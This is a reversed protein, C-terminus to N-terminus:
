FDIVLSDNYQKQLVKFDEKMTKVVEQYSAEQALDNLEKPDNKMDYLRVVKATPYIILKYDETRIMRQQNKYSGYVALYNSEQQKGKVFPMLSSFEVYDPKEVGALDLSTAMIDQLYVAVDTKKGKPVDPGAMMLPPRISHDYMNQKGILGHCGVSLGHDATFFIYTNDAKGSAELADLIRGIQQDMHTIIAYYEQRNVRVAYETRPFPALREDRLTRPCGMEENYPYEELFSEPVSINELPYMDVFEKPSQRPDHPANFALYMFFPNEKEKAQAIFGLADDGVIESWHKSGQWFGGFETKWPKWTTDNESLPRNYGAETQKPMGARPHAVYDFVKEPDVKVHWKGTLYTDYGASKMLPAWLKGEENLATMKPTKDYPYANWVFRGTNIMARSAVCVAGNWAGMNYAHTFTLSNAALRDLNPTIVESNLGHAAVADYCMDDAFIFVINPKESESVCSALLLTLLVFALTKKM